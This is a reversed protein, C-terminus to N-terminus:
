IGVTWGIIYYGGYYVVVVATLDWRHGIKEKHKQLAKEANNATAFEVYADGTSQGDQDM